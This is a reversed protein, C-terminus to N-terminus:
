TEPRTMQELVAQLWLAPVTTPPPAVHGTFTLNPHRSTKYGESSRWMRVSYSVHEEHEFMTVSAVWHM